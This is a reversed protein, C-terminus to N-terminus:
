TANRPKISSMGKFVEEKIEAFSREEGFAREFLESRITKLGKQAKLNKEIFSFISKYHSEPIVVGCQHLHSSYAKPKKWQSGEFFFMPRNYHLFDYGISSFDGLYIDTRKLLPLVLPYQSLVMINPIERYKEELHHVYGPKYHILWPHLKMILNYHDPLQEPVSLGVDTFSSSLELDQWTPAYLLTTQKKAFHSFVDEEVLNDYFNEYEKYFSFRYNGTRVYGKVDDLIGSEKLREEMIDGYTFFFHQDKFTDISKDSNGHPCYWFHMKKRFIVEFLPSLDKRYNASSVFLFDHNNAFYELIKAHHDIYLLKIQPYYKKMVDTLLEVDVVLPMGMIYSLPALHDLHNVSDGPALCIGCGESVTTSHTM